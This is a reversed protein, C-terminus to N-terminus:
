ANHWCGRVEFIAKIHLNHVNLNARVPIWSGHSVLLQRLLAVQLAKLSVACSHMQRGPYRPSLQSIPLFSNHWNWKYMQQFHFVHLGVNPHVGYSAYMLLFTLCNLYHLLLIFNAFIYHYFHHLVVLQLYFCWWAYSNRYM